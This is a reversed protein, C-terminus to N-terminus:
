CRPTDRSSPSGGFATPVDLERTPYEIRSSLLVFRLVRRAKTVFPIASRIISPPVPCPPRPVANSSIVTLLESKESNRISIGYLVNDNVLNQSASIWKEYLKIVVSILPEHAYWLTLNGASQGSTEIPEAVRDLTV